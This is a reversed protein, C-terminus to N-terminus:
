IFLHVEGDTRSFPNCMNGLSRGSGRSKCLRILLLASEYYTKNYPCSHRSAKGHMLANSQLLSRKLNYTLHQKSHLVSHLPTFRSLKKFQGLTLSRAETIILLSLTYLFCISRICCRQHLLANDSSYSAHSAKSKRDTHVNLVFKIRKFDYCVQQRPESFKSDGIFPSTCTVTLQTHVCNM